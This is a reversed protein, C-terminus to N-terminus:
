FTDIKLRSLYSGPSVPPEPSPIRGAGVAGNRRENQEERSLLSFLPPSVSLPPFFVSIRDGADGAM